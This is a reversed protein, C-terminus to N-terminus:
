ELIVLLTSFTHPYLVQIDSFLLGFDSKALTLSVQPHM